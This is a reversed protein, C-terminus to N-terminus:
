FVLVLNIQVNISSREDTRFRMWLRLTVAVRDVLGDGGGRM